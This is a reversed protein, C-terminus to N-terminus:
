SGVGCAKLFPLIVGVVFPRHFLWPSPLLIVAVCYLWGLLGRGLGCVRGWRSRELVIGAGQLLFYLTPLGWGGGAPLSIVLDHILGSVLFGVLLSGTPGLPRRLPQFLFRHTLDRFALNWRRGWFETLSKSLIPWQMLPAASIGLLRWGCSLLHFLGFHLTFVIGFMAVWGRLYDDMTRLRPVVVTLVVIGFLFKSAAFLCERWTLSQSSTPRSGLFADVDMGPWAGLYALHKWLPAQSPVRQQWSLLKLVGYLAFSLGWMFAWRPWVQPSWGAPLLTEM